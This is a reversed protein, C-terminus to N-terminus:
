RGAPAAMAPLEDEGDVADIPRHSHGVDAAKRVQIDLVAIEIRLLSRVAHAEVVEMADTLDKASRHDERLFKGGPESAHFIKERNV